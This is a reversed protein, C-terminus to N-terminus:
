LLRWFNEHCLRTAFSIKGDVGYKYQGFDLSDQLTPGPGFEGGILRHNVARLNMFLRHVLRQSVTFEIEAPFM